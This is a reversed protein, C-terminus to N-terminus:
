LFDLLIWTATAGLFMGVPILGSIRGILGGILAQILQTATFLVLLLTVIYAAIKM